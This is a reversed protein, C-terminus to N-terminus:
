GKKATVKKEPITVRGMALLRAVDKDPIDVMQGAKVTLTTDKLIRVKM